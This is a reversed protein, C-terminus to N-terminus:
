KHYEKSMNRVLFKRVYNPTSRLSLFKEIEENTPTIEEGQNDIMRTNDLHRRYLMAYQLLIRAAKEPFASRFRWLLEDSARDRIEYPKIIREM